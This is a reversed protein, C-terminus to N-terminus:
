ENREWWGKKIPTKKDQLSERSVGLNLADRVEQLTIRDSRMGADPLKFSYMKSNNTREDAYQMFGRMLEPTPANEEIIRQMDGSEWAPQNKALSMTNVVDSWKNVQDQGFRNVLQQVREDDVKDSKDGVIDDYTPGEAGYRNAQTQVEMLNRQAPTGTLGIKDKILRYNKEIAIMLADNKKENFTKDSVIFGTIDTKRDLGPNAIKYVEREDFASQMNAYSDLSDRPAQSKYDLQKLFSVLNPRYETSGGTKGFMDAIDKDYAARQKKNPELTNARDLENVKELVTNFTLAAKQARSMSKLDEPTITFVDKDRQKYKNVAYMPGSYDDKLGKMNSSSNFMSGSSGFTGFSSAIMPADEVYDKVAKDVADLGVQKAYAKLAKADGEYAKPNLKEFEKASVKKVWSGGEDKFTRENLRKKFQSEWEATVNQPILNAELPNASTQNSEKKYDKSEKALKRDQGASSFISPKTVSPEEVDKSVTQAPEITRSLSTNKLSKVFVDSKSSLLDSPKYKKVAAKVGTSAGLGAGLLLNKAM